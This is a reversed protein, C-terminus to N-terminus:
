VYECYYKKNCLTLNNCSRSINSRDVNIFESAEKTSKFVEILTHNLDYVAVKKAFSYRNNYERTCWELNDMRNDDRIKNIHNVEPLNNPNPIFAEAVLRHIKKTYIKGDKCLAVQTYGGRYYRPKM